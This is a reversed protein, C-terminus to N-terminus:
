QAPQLANQLLKRQDKLNKLMQLELSLHVNSTELAGMVLRVSDSDAVSQDLPKSGSIPKFLVACCKAPQLVSEDAFQILSVVGCVTPKEQGPIQCVIEGNLSFEIEGALEPIVVEPQLPLLGNQLKLCVQRKENLEFRGARTFFNQTGLRVQFFGRGSIAWDLQRGTRLVASLTFDIKSHVAQNEIATAEASFDVSNVSQKQSQTDVPETDLSPLILLVPEIRKYGVTKINALNKRVIQEAQTLAALVPYRQEIQEFIPEALEPRSKKLLSETDLVPFSQQDQAFKKRFSLLERIANAPLGQLEELWIKREEQSSNPLEKQIIALTQERKEATKNQIPTADVPPSLEEPKSKTGKPMATVAIESGEIDTLIHEATASETRPSWISVGTFANSSRGVRNAQQNLAPKGDGNIPSNNVILDAYDGLWHGCVILGVSGLVVCLLVLGNTKKKKDTAM